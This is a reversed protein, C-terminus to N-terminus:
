LVTRDRSLQLYQEVTIRYLLMSGDTSSQRFGCACVSRISRQNELEIGARLFISAAKKM